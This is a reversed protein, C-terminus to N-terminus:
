DDVEAGDEVRFGVGLKVQYWGVGSGEIRGRIEKVEFWDLKRGAEKADAVGNQIADEVSNPSTGVLETMRYTQGQDMREEM